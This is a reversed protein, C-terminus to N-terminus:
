RHAAPWIIERTFEGTYNDNNRINWWRGTSFQRSISYNFHGVLELTVCRVSEHYNITIEVVAGEGGCQWRKLLKDGARRSAIFGNVQKISIDFVTISSSSKRWQAAQVM